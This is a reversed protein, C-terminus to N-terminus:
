LGTEQRRIRVVDRAGPRRRLEVISALRDVVYTRGVLRYNILETAGREDVALLIPAEEVTLREPMRILLRSGDDYVAEPRMAAGKVEVKYDFRHAALAGDVPVESGYRWAFALPASSTGRDLLLRYTRKTTLVVINTASAGVEPRVLLHNRMSRGQGSAVVQLPWHATDGGAIGTITEATGLMIDTVMGVAATIVYLREEEYDATLLRDPLSPIGPADNFVPAMPIGPLASLGMNLLIVAIM